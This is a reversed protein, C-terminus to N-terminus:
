VFIDPEPPNRYFPDGTILDEIYKTTLGINLAPLLVSQATLLRSHMLKLLSKLRKM